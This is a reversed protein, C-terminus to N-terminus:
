CENMKRTIITASVTQMKMWEFIDHESPRIIKKQFIEFNAMKICYSGITSPKLFFMYPWPWHAITFVKRQQFPKTFKCWDNVTEFFVYIASALTRQYLKESWLRNQLNLRISRALARPGASMVWKFVIREFIITVAIAWFNGVGSKVIMNEIEAVRCHTFANFIVRALGEPESFTATSPPFIKPKFPINKKAASPKAVNLNLSVTCIPQFQFYSPPARHQFNKLLHHHGIEFISEQGFIQLYKPMSFWPDYKQFQGYNYNFKPLLTIRRWLLEHKFRTLFVILSAFIKNLSHHINKSVSPKAASLKSSNAGHLDASISVSTTPKSISFKSCFSNMCPTKLFIVRPKKSLTKYIKPWPITRKFNAVCSSMKPLFKWQQRNGSRTRNWGGQMSYVRRIQGPGLQHHLFIHQPKLWFIKAALLSIKWFWFTQGPETERQQCRAPHSFYFRCHCGGITSIKAWFCIDGLGIHTSVIKRKLSPKTFKCWDNVTEFFVYIASALTRQHFRKTFNPPNLPGASMVWKFVIRESTVTNKFRQWCNSLFKWCRLGGDYKWNWGSQVAYVRQIHGPGFRRTRFFNSNTTFINKAISSINKAETPKAANLNSSIVGHLDVLFRVQLPTARHQFNKLLQIRHKWFYSECSKQLRKIFKQSCSQKNSIPWAHVQKPCFNGSNATAVAHEIEAVRFLTFLEFCLRALNIPCFFISPKYTWCPSKGKKFQVLRYGNLVRNQTDRWLAFWKDFIQTFAWSIWWAIHRNFIHM